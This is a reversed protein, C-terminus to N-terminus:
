SRVPELRMIFEDSFDRTMGLVGTLSQHHVMIYVGIYDPPDSKAVKRSTPCWYRDPSTYNCGFKTSDTTINAGTYTNCLNAVSGTRCAALAGSATTSSPGTAKFIIIKTVNGAHMGGLDNVAENIIQFDADADKGLTSAFRAADRTSNSLTLYSRFALGFEMTGFVLLLFIPLVLASEVVVSGRESRVRSTGAGPRRCRRRIM